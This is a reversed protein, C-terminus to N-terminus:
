TTTTGSAVNTQTALQNLPNYTYTTSSTLTTKSTLYGNSNYTYTDGLNDSTRYGQSNLYYTVSYSLSVEDLIVSDTYYAYTTTNSGAPTVAVQTIIRNQGDYTFTTVITDNQGSVAVIQTMSKLLGATGSGPSVNTKKCSGAALLLATALAITKINKM